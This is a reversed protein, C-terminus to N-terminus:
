LISTRLYFITQIEIELVSYPPVAGVNLDMDRAKHQTSQVSSNVNARHGENFVFTMDLRQPHKDNLFFIRLTLLESLM